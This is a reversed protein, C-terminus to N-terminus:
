PALELWIENRRMFWPTWPPNYRAWVPEGQWRLGRRELAEQLRQLEEEYRATSWFGSYRIVAVTRAPVERLSVRPDTPEPLTALTWEAPMVFRVVSGDPDASQAVPATMAIKVPTQAVPATMQIKRAGRNKGFIYGALIRFGANGAEQLDGPVRTEAVVCPAYRRVEFVDHREVIEFRPEEVAMAPAGTVLCALAAFARWCESLTSTLRRAARAGLHRAGVAQRLARREDPGAAQLSNGV